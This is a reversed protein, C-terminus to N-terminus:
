ERMHGVSLSVGKDSEGAETRNAPTQYLNNLPFAADGPLSFADVALTSLQKIAENQSMPVRAGAIVGLCQSIFLILYILLRDAGGKIEFNRFLSNARFLDLSEDIIDMQETDIPPPAPGRVKSRFPLLTVNAISAVQDPSVDNYASHYAPMATAFARESPPSLTLPPSLDM